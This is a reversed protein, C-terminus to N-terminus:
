PRDEASAWEKLEKLLEVDGGVMALMEADSPEATDGAQPSAESSVWQKLEGLLERDGDVLALLEEESMESEPVQNESTGKGNVVRAHLDETALERQRKKKRAATKELISMSKAKLALWDDDNSTLQAQSPPVETRKGQIKSEKLKSETSGKTTGIGEDKAWDQLEKLLGVDGGVLSLMHEEDTEDATSRASPGSARKPADFDLTSGLGQEQWFQKRVESKVQEQERASKRAEASVLFIETKSRLQQRKLERQRHQADFKIKMTSASRLPPPHAVFGQEKAWTKLEDLMEEDGGALSRLGEDDFSGDESVIRDIDNKKLGLTDTQANHKAPFRVLPMGLLREQEKDELTKRLRDQKRRELGALAASAKAKVMDRRQINERAQLEEDAPGMLGTDVNRSIRSTAM